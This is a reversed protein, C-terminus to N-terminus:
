SITLAASVKTVSTNPGTWAIAGDSLRASNFDAEEPFPRSLVLWFDGGCRFVEGPKLDSFTCNKKTNDIIEM